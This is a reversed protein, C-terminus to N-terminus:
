HRLLQHEADAVNGAVSGGAERQLKGASPQTNCKLVPSARLHLEDDHQQRDVLRGHRTPTGDVCVQQRRRQHSLPHRCQADQRWNTAVRARFSRRRSVHRASSGDTRDRLAASRGAPGTSEPLGAPRAVRQRSHHLTAASTQVTDHIACSRRASRPACCPWTASSSLFGVVATKRAMDIQRHRWLYSIEVTFSTWPCRTFM